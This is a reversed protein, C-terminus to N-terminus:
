NVAECTCNLLPNECGMCELAKLLQKTSDFHNIYKVIKDNFHKLVTERNNYNVKFSNVILPTNIHGTLYLYCNLKNSTVFKCDMISSNDNCVNVEYGVLDWNIKKFKDLSWKKLTNVDLKRNM